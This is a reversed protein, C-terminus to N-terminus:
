PGKSSLGGFPKSALARRLHIKKWFATHSLCIATKVLKLKRTCGIVFKVGGFLYVGYVTM